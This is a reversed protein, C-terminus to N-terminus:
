AEVRRLDRLLAKYDKYRRSPNPQISALAINKISRPFPELIRQAHKFYAGSMLQASTQQWYAEAETKNLYLYPLMGCISYIAIMGIAFIDAAVGSTSKGQLREPAIYRLTGADPGGIKGKHMLRSIGWDSVQVQNPFKNILINSPKIDLHALEHREHAYRLAECVQILVIQTQSWTLAGKELIDQLTGNRMEMLAAIRFNLRSIKILPLIAPHHLLIWNSLENVVTAQDQGEFTKVARHRGYITGAEAGDPRELFWVRGFGGRRDGIVNYFYSDLQVRARIKDTM